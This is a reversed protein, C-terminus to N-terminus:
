EGPVQTQRRGCNMRTRRVSTLLLAQLLLLAGVFLGAPVYPAHLGFGKALMGGGLSGVLIGLLLTAEHLGSKLGRSGTGELSKYLGRFYNVGLAIGIMAFVLALWAQSQATSVTAVLIAALGQTAMALRGHHLTHGWRFGLLFVASRGLALGGMFLGFMGATVGMHAGLKPFVGSMLGLLSCVSVNSLWVTALERRTGPVPECSPGPQPTGHGCRSGVLAGCALLAPVTALAFPLSRGLGFLWGALLGGVMGGVSWAVNVAGTAPGLRAGDHSDGLWAFLSPWFPAMALAWIVSLVCLQWYERAGAVALFVVTLAVATYAVLGRRNVRDSLMSAPVCALVYAAGRLAALVGLQMSDAGFALGLYPLAVFFLGNALDMCFSSLCFRSTQRWDIGAKM